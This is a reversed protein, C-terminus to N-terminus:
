DRPMKQMRGATKELMNHKEIKDASLHARITEKTKPEGQGHCRLCPCKRQRGGVRRESNVDKSPSKDIIDDDLISYSSSAPTITDSMEIDTTEGSSTENDPTEAGIAEDTRVAKSLSMSSSINDASGIESSRSIKSFVSGPATNRLADDTFAQIKSATDYVTDNASTAQQLHDSPDDAPTAGDAGEINTRIKQDHADFLDDLDEFAVNPSEPYPPSMRHALGEEVSMGQDGASMDEDTQIGWGDGDTPQPDFPDNLYADDPHLYDAYSGSEGAGSM